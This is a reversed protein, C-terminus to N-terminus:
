QKRSCFFSSQLVEDLKGSEIAHLWREEESSCDDDDDKTKSKKKKANQRPSENVKNSIDSYEIQFDNSIISCSFYYFIFENWFHLFTRWNENSFYFVYKQSSVDSLCNNGEDNLFSSDLGNGFDEPVRKKRLKSPKSRRDETDTDIGISQLLYVIILLSIQTKWIM